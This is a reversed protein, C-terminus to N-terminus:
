FKFLNLGVEASFEREAEGELVHISVECTGSVVAADLHGGLTRYTSDSLNAHLHLYVDGKMRSINGTLSTIEHDGVLERRVYEKTQARFLGITAKDTAGLGSVTGLRIGQERCFRALTEVVEEGRDIRLLWNKGCAKAEM